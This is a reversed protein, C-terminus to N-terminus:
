WLLTFFFIYESIPSLSLEIMEFEKEDIITSAVVHQRMYASIKEHEDHRYKLNPM